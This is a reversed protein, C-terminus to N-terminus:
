KGQSQQHNELTKKIFEGLKKMPIELVIRSVFLGKEAESKSFTVQDIFVQGSENKRLIIGKDVEGEQLRITDLLDSFISEIKEGAPGDLITWIDKKGTALAMLTGPTLGLEKLGKIM